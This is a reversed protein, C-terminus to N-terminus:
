EAVLLADVFLEALLIQFRVDLCSPQIQSTSIRDWPDQFDTEQFHLSQEDIAPHHLYFPAELSAVIYQGFVEM